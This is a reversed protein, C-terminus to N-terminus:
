KSGKRLTKTANTFIDKTVKEIRRQKKQTEHGKKTTEPNYKYVQFSKGHAYKYFTSSM